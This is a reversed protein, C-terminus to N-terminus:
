KIFAQKTTVFSIDEGSGANMITLDAEELKMGVENSNLNQQVRKVHKTILPEPLLKQISSPLNIDTKTSAVVKKAPKYVVEPLESFNNEKDSQYFGPAPQSKGLTPMMRQPVNQKLCAPSNKIYTAIPSVIGKFQRSQVLPSKPNPTLKSKLPKFPLKFNDHNPSKRRIYNGIPSQVYDFKSNPCKQIKKKSILKPISSVSNAYSSASQSSKRESEEDGPMVYDLGQKLVMEMEEMTDNFVLSDSKSTDTEISACSSAPPQLLFNNDSEINKESEQTQNESISSVGSINIEPAKIVDTNEEDSELGEMKETKEEIQSFYINYKEPLVDEKVFDNSLYQESSCLSNEKLESSLDTKEELNSASHESQSYEESEETGSSVQAKEESFSENQSSSSTLTERTESCNMKDQTIQVDSHHFSNISQLPSKNMENKNLLSSLNKESTSCNKDECYEGDSLNEISEKETLSKNQEHDGNVSVDTQKETKVLVMLQEPDVCSTLNDSSSDSIVIIDDEESTSTSDDSIEEISSNIIISEWTIDEFTNEVLSQQINEINCYEEQTKIINILTDNKNKTVDLATVYSGDSENQPDSEIVKNLKELFIDSKTAAATQEPQLSEDPTFYASAASVISKNDSDKETSTSASVDSYTYRNLDSHRYKIKNPERNVAKKVEKLTMPGWAIEEESDYYSEM